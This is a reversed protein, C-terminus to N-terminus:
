AAAKAQELASLTEQYEVVFRQMSRNGAAVAALCKRLLEPLDLSKFRYLPPWALEPEDTSPMLLSECLKRLEETLGGKALLRAYCVLWHEFEDKSNLAVAAALQYYVHDRSASMQAEPGAALLAAATDQPTLGQLGHLVSQAAALPGDSPHVGTSALNSHFDSRQFAKSEANGVELWAKLAAHYAYVRSPARFGHLAAGGASMTVVPTGDGTLTIDMVDGGLKATLIPSLDIGAHIVTLKDLRWVYLLRASTLAIVDMEKIRLLSLPAGTMLPPLLRKGCPTFTSVSGAEGAVVVISKNAALATARESLLTSWKAAGDHICALKHEETNSRGNTTVVWSKPSMEASLKLDPPLRLPKLESYLSPAQIVVPAPAPTLAPPLAASAMNRSSGGGTTRRRKGASTSPRDSISSTSARHVPSPAAASAASTSDRRQVEVLPAMAPHSVMPAQRAGSGGSLLQPTIRRKGESTRSEQQGPVHLRQTKLDTAYSGSSFTTTLERPKVLPKAAAAAAAAGNQMARKRKTEAASNEFNLQVPTEAIVADSQPAGYLKRYLTAKESPPIARGMEKASFSLFAVSGEQSCALLELGNSSWSMDMVGRDPEFLEHVVIMPRKEQTEWISLSSDNSGVAVRTVLKHKNGDLQKEFIRQNARACTVPKQHGVFDDKKAFPEQDNKRLVCAAVHFGGNESNSTVITQGDASWAIRNFM